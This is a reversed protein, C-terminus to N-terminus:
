VRSAGGAGSSLVLPLVGLIFSFTTMLVPRLCLHAAEIAADHISKGEFRQQRAFEVILIANKAILGVLLVPGISSYVDNAAGCSCCPASCEWRCVSSSGWRPSGARM